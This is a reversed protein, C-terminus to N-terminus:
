LDRLDLVVKSPDKVNGILKIYRKKIGTIKVSQKYTGNAVKVTDGPRAKNVAKQISTYKCGKKCVRLTKFPGKPKKQIVGPKNPAPYEAAGAPATVLLAAAPIAALLAAKRFRVM